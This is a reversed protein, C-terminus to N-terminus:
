FHIHTINLYKRNPPFFSPPSPSCISEEPSRFLSLECQIHRSSRLGLQGNYPREKHFGKTNQVSRKTSLHSERCVPLGCFFCMLFLHYTLTGKVTNLIKPPTILFGPSLVLVSSKMNKRLGAEGGRETKAKMMMTQKQKTKNKRYIISCETRGPELQRKTPWHRLM